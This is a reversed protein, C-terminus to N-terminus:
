FIKPVGLRLLFPPLFAGIPIGIFGFIWKIRYNDMGIKSWTGQIALMSALGLALFIVSILSSWAFLWRSDSNLHISYTFSHMALWWLIILFAYGVGNAFASNGKYFPNILLGLIWKPQYNQIQEVSSLDFKTRFLACLFVLLASNILILVPGLVAHVARVPLHVGWISADGRQLLFNIFVLLIIVTGTFLLGSISKVLYLPNM